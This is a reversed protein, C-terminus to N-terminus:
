RCRVSFEVVAGISLVSVGLSVALQWWTMSIAIM